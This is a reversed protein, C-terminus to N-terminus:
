SVAKIAEGEDRAVPILKDLRTLKLVKLIDGSMNFVALKGGKSTCARGLTILGGLGVSALLRVERFDLAVRWGAGPAAVGIETQMVETERDAVKECRLRAVLVRGVMETSVFQKESM